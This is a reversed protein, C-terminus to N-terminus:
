LENEDHGVIHLVCYYADNMNCYFSSEKGCTECPKDDESIKVHYIKSRASVNSNKYIRTLTSFYGLEEANLQKGGNLKKILIQWKEYEGIKALKLREIIEITKERDLNM